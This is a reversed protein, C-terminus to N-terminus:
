VNKTKINFLKGYFYNTIREIIKIKTNNRHYRGWLIELEDTSYANDKLANNFSIKEHIKIVRKHLPALKMSSKPLMQRRKELFRILGNIYEKSFSSQSRHFSDIITCVYNNFQTAVSFSFDTDYIHFNDYNVEDFKFRLFVDKSTFMFMGDIVVVEEFQKKGNHYSKLTKQDIPLNKKSSVFVHSFSVFRDIRWEVFHEDVYNSGALGIVGCNSHSRCFDILIKGWGNTFFYMDEHVFLLYDYKAKQACENYVKCLGWKNIRNDFEILEYEVGITQNVNTKFEELMIPNASCVILSIM